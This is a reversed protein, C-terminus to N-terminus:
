HVLAKVYSTSNPEDAKRWIKKNPEKVVRAQRSDKVSRVTSRATKNTRSKSLDAV